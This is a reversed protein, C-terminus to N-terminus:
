QAEQRPRPEILPKDQLKRPIDETWDLSQRKPVVANPNAGAALLEKVTDTRKFWVAVALATEHKGEGASGKERDEWNPDAGLKLLGRIYEASRDGACMTILRGLCDNDLGGAEVVRRYMRTAAAEDGHICIAARWFVSVRGGVKAKLDAGAKDLANFIEEYGKIAAQHIPTEQQTNRANPDAGKELLQTVEAVNNADVAKFLKANAKADAM